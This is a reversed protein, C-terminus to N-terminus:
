QYNNVKYVFHSPYTSYHPKSICTVGADETHKCTIAEFMDRQCDLLSEEDGSCLLGGLLIPGNGGGFYASVHATAGSCFKTDDFLVLNINLHLFIACLICMTIGQRLFGLQACVVKADNSNWSHDCVTGWANNICVEVRGENTANTLGALRLEGNTCQSHVTDPGTCVFITYLITCFTIHGTLTCVFLINCAPYSRSPVFVSCSRIIFVNGQCIVAADDRFMCNHVEAESHSCSTINEETGNCHVDNIGFSLQGLSVSM